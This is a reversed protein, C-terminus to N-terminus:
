LWVQGAVMQDIDRSLNRLQGALQDAGSALLLAVAVAADQDNGGDMAGLRVLAALLADADGPHDRDAAIAAVEQLGSVCALSPEAIVWVPWRGSREVLEALVPWTLGLHQMSSMALGEPLSGTSPSVM